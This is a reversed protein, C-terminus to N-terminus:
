RLRIRNLRLSNLVVCVSSFAMAASAFMPTLLIGFFPYLVGAAIPIGIVNYIFAWFLNEKIIKLTAKSLKMALPIATLKGGVITVQSSNIAVDSGGGMAISVDASVLAASDNIGDGAMAVLEGSDKLNEIVSVKDHPMTEAYVRQIGAESAIRKATAKRDGTVLVTEVGHNRLEAVADGADRRIPDSICMMLMIRDDIGAFIIIEGDAAHSDASKMLDESASAGMNAMLNASGVWVVSDNPLSARLGLGTLHEPEHLAIEIDSDKTQNRAFDAVANALPHTSGSELSILAAMLKNKQSDSEALWLHYNVTPKGLTLTGTKDIALIRINNLLELAEANRVLIGNKASRGIGVMIATPTALGLACPCAIVLVAVATLLAMDFDGDTCFMWIGFTILSVVLVTPVFWAAIKDVLRQVPAKSGQAERVAEIIRQLETAAGVAEARLHLIGNGNVTGAYVKEGKKKEVPISEGTMMSEDIASVGKTVLGDVPVKEGPRLLIMDGPRLSNIKVVEMVGDDKLLTAEEPQLAMLARISSGTARKARAELVKGTLVFAVIMAAGEYYVDPSLGRDIWYEPWITNALSYLFSAATSLAVLTDMSPHKRILSRIGRTYFGNGCVALVIFTLGMMIWKDGDFHFHLMCMLFVPITLVWSLIMKALLRRYHANEEAEAKEVAEERDATVIMDYGEARLADAVKLPAVEDINWSLSLTNAALNVEAKEVGQISAATKEVTGACVACMMGTVPFIESKIKTSM